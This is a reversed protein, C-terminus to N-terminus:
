FGTRAVNENHTALVRSRKNTNIQVCFSLSFFHLLFPLCFVFSLSPSQTSTRTTMRGDGDYGGDM